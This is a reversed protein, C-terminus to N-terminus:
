ADREHIAPRPQGRRGHGDDPQGADCEQAHGAAQGEAAAGGGGDPQSVQGAAGPVM